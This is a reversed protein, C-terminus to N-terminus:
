RQKEPMELGEVRGVCSTESVLVREVHAWDVSSLVWTLSPNNVYELFRM